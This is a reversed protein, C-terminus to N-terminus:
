HGVKQDVTLGVWHGVKQGVSSIASREVMQLERKEVKMRAM